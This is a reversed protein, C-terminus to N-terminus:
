YSFWRVRPGFVSLECVILTHMGSHMVIRRFGIEYDIGYISPRYQLAPYRQNKLSM